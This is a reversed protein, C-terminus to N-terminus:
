LSSYLEWGKEICIKRWINDYEMLKWRCKLLKFYKSHEEKKLIRLIKNLVYSYSFYNYRNIYKRYSREVEQFMEIINEEEKRTLTLPAVGTVGCYIQQINNYYKTLKNNKLIEMINTLTPMPGVGDWRIRRKLLDRKIIDYVKEPVNESEAAQFRRLRVKLLNIRKYSYQCVRGSPM